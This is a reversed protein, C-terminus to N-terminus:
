LSLVYVWIPITVFSLVMGVGLTAMGLKEHLGSNIAIVTALVMPPMAAEIIATKLAIDIEFFYLSIGYLSLPILVMSTFLTAAVLKEEGKIDSLVFKMGVAFIVLPVLTSSVMSLFQELVNPFYFPKTAVALIFAITPPFSLINKVITKIKIKHTSTGYSSLIPVFLAVLLMNIQDYFVALSLAYEGYYSQVFAFGLFSTNGFAAGVAIMATKNKDLNFLKAFVFAFVIGLCFSLFAILCVLYIDENFKLYHIKYIIFVPFIFYLVLDILEKSSDSHFRKFIYGSIFILLISFVGSM